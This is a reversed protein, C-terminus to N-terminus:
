LRLRELGSLGAFFGRQGDYDVQPSLTVLARLLQAVVASQTEGDPALVKLQPCLSTAENLLQGERVGLAEAAPTAAWIRPSAQALECVAAVQEWARPQGRFRVALEFRPLWVCAIRAM